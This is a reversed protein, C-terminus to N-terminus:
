RVGRLSLLVLILDIIFLLVITAELVVMWFNNWDRQLLQYLDGLTNLKEDIVRQWDGLHFRSSLNEYMRALHWDGFFKTINSLEDSFRALDVRIERLNRRVQGRGPATRRAVDRYALELSEDLIRDYASLEVLQVNALEMIHLIDDLGDRAGIVLAADWDVVVLDSYYYSLYQGTSENAEQESLNASDEEETLLGAVQRRNAMLWDETRVSPGDGKGPLEYFCFVTYDEGQSLRPLPRICYPELERRVQEALKNAEDEVSGTAFSLNHYGVLDEIRGVEFPVRVQISIAGVNFLKVSRQVEVAGHPGQRTEPPLSVIQPRYFFLRKPSRKTPMVSYEKVPVSLIERVPERKMDYALDFAYIYVVEGRYPGAKAAQSNQGTEM